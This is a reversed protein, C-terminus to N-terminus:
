GGRKAEVFGAVREMALTLDARSVCPYVIRFLGNKTHGFGVGPTLLVGTSYYLDRWLEM